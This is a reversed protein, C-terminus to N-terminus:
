PMPHARARSSQATFADFHTSLVPRYRNGRYQVRGFGANVKVRFPHAETTFVWEDLSYNNSDDFVTHFLTRDTM